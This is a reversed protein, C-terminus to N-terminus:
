WVRCGVQGVALKEAYFYELLLDHPDNIILFRRHM